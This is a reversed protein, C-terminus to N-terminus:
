SLMVSPVPLLSRTIVAMLSRPMAMGHDIESMYLVSRGKSMFRYDHALSLIFGGATAHGTMAAFTPISLRMFAALMNEFEVGIRKMNEAPNESMWKLDLGNSFFRYM